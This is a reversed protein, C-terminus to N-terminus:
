PFAELHPTNGGFFPILILHYDLEVGCTSFIGRGHAELMLCVNDHVEGCTYPLVEDHVYIVLPLLSLTRIQDV